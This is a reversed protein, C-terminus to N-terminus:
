PAGPLVLEQYDEPIPPLFQGGDLEVDREWRDDIERLTMERYGTVLCPNVKGEFEVQIPLRTQPNVWMCTRSPGLSLFFDVLKRSVQMGGTLREVLDPVEFGVAQIGQVERPDLKSYDGSAFLWEFLKMPTVQRIREGVEPPVQTRYYKKYAPFLVTMTGTPLHYTFEIILRGDETYTRDVYGSHSFLKEVGLKYTPTEDNSFFCSRTGTVRATHIDEVAKQVDAWAVSEPVLGHRGPFLFSLAVLLVVGIGAYKAYTSRMICRWIRELSIRQECVPEAFGSRLLRAEAPHERSWQELDFATPERHLRRALLEDLRDIDDKPKM